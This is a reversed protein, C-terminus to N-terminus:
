RIKFAVSPVDYTAPGGITIYNDGIGIYHAIMKTAIVHTTATVIVVKTNLGKVDHLGQWSDSHRYDEMLCLHYEDVISM